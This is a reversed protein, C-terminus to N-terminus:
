QNIDKILLIKNCLFSMNGYTKIGCYYRAIYKVFIIEVTTFWEYKDTPNNLKTYSTDSEGSM